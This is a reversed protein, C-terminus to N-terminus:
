MTARLWAMKSREPTASSTTAHTPTAVASNAALMPSTCVSM